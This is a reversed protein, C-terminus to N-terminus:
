SADGGRADDWADLADDWRGTRISAALHDGANHLREIVLRTDELEDEANSIDQSIGATKAQWQDRETALREIEDAADDFLSGSLMTVTAEGQSEDVVRAMTRLEEVINRDSM